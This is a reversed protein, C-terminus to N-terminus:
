LLIQKDLIHEELIDEFQIEIKKTMPLDLKLVGFLYEAKNINITEIKVFPNYDFKKFKVFCEFYIDFYGFDLTLKLHETLTSEM